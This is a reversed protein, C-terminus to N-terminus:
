HVHIQCACGIAKGYWLRLMRQSLERYLQTRHWRCLCLCFSLQCLQVWYQHTNCQYCADVFLIGAESVGEIRFLEALFHLVTSSWSFCITVQIDLNTFFWVRRSDLQRRIMIENAIYISCKRNTVHKEVSSAPACCAEDAEDNRDVKDNLWPWNTSSCVNCDSTEDCGGVAETLTCYNDFLTTPKRKV